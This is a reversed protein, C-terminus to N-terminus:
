STGRHGWLVDSEEGWSCTEYKPVGTEWFGFMGPTGACHQAVCPLCSHARHWHLSVNGCCHRCRGLLSISCTPFYYCVLLFLWLCLVRRPFPLSPLGPHGAGRLTVACTVSAAEEWGWAWWPSPLNCRNRNNLPYHSWISDQLWAVFLFWLTCALYSGQFRSANSHMIGKKITIFLGSCYVFIVNWVSAHNYDAIYSMETGNPNVKLLMRVSSTMKWTIDQKLLEIEFNFVVGLTVVVLLTICFGDWIGWFYKKIQLLSGRFFM